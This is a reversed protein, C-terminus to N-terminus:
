REGREGERKRKREKKGKRIEASYIIKLILIFHALKTIIQSELLWAM